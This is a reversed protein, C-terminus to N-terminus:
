KEEGTRLGDGLGAVCKNTKIGAKPSCNRVRSYMFAPCALSWSAKNKMDLFHPKFLVVGVPSNHPLSADMVYTFMSPVSNSAQEFVHVVM